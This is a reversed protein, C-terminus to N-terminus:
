SGRGTTEIQSLLDREIQNLEERWEKQVARLQLSKTAALLENLQSLTLKSMTTDGTAPRDVDVM